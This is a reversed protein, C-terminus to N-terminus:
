KLKLMISFIKEVVEEPSSKETDVQYGSLKDYLPKRVQYMKMADDVIIKVLEEKSIENVNIQSALQSNLVPRKTESQNMEDKAIRKRLVDEGVYLVVNMLSECGQILESNLEGFAMGTDLDIIGNVAVGGGASIVVHELRLTERLVQNELRRMPVWDKGNQTLKNIPMEALKEIQQDMEIYQWGLKAALLKATTSKGVARFGHLM